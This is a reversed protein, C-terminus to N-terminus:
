RQYGGARAGGVTAGQTGVVAGGLALQTLDTDRKAQAIVGQLAGHEARLRALKAQLEVVAGKREEFDHVLADSGVFGQKQKLAANEARLRDRLQKLEALRDRAATLAASKDSLETQARANCHRVHQLKERVHTLVQMTSVTKKLLKHLQDGREEIQDSLSTNEIKLQEFDILHLGESLEDRRKIESLLRQIQGRLTICKLRAEAVVKEAQEEEEELSLLKKRSISRGTKSHVAQAAVERRFTRFADQLRTMKDDHKDLVATLAAVKTDAAERREDLRDWAVSLVDLRKAYVFRLYEANHTAGARAEAVHLLENRAAAGADQAWFRLILRQRARHVARLAARERRAVELDKSPVNPRAGNASWPGAADDDEEEEDDDDEDEDEDEDDGDGDGNDNDNGEGDNDDNDDDDDDHGRARRRRRPGGTRIAGAAGGAAASSSSGAGFDDDDDDNAGASGRVLNAALAAPLASTSSGAAAAMANMRDLASSGQSTRKGDGGAAPAAAAAASEPGADAGDDGDDDAYNADAGADDDNNNYDYGDPSADEDGGDYLDGDEVGAGGAAAAAARGARGIPEHDDELGEAYNGGADDDQMAALTDADDEAPYDAEAPYAPIGGPRASDQETDSYNGEVDDDHGGAHHAGYSGDDAYADDGYGTGDDPYGTNYADHEDAM